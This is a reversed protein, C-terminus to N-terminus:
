QAGPPQAILAAHSVVIHGAFAEFYEPGEVTYNWRRKHKFWERLVALGDVIGRVHFKRGHHINGPTYNLHFSAGPTVWEPLCDM